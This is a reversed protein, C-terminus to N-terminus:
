LTECSREMGSVLEQSEEWDSITHRSGHLPCTLFAPPGSCCSVSVKGIEHWVSGTKQDPAIQPAKPPGWKPDLLQAFDRLRLRKGVEGGKGAFRFIMSVEMPSFTGYRMARSAHNIFDLASIKGDPSRACAERVIKEVIDMDRIVNHMAICESYTIKGSPNVTTQESLSELVTDSLKHRALDYIIRQFQEPTIYGTQEKDFHHFAQRLREGQLGKM